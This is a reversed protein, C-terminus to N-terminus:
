SAADIAAAPLLLFGYVAAIPAAPEWLQGILNLLFQVLAVM